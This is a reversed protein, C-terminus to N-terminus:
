ICIVAAGDRSYRKFVNGKGQSGFYYSFTLKKFGSGSYVDQEGMQIINRSSRIKKEQM